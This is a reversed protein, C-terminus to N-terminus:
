ERDWPPGFVMSPASKWDEPGNWFGADIGAQQLAAILDAGAKRMANTTDKPWTVLVGAAAGGGVVSWVRPQWGAAQLPGTVAETFQMTEPTDGYRFVDISINPHIKLRDRIANRQQTSLTRPARFKALELNAEAARVEAQAARESARAAAGNARAIESVRANEVRKEYPRAFWDGLLEMGVGVVVLVAGANRVIRLWELWQEANSLDDTNM